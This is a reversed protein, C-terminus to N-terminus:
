AILSLHSFDDSPVCLQSRFLDRSEEAFGLRSISAISNIFPNDILDAVDLNRRANGYNSRYELALADLDSFEMSEIEGGKPQFCCSFVAQTPLKELLLKQVKGERAQELDWVKKSVILNNWQQNSGQCKDLIKSQNEERRRRLLEEILKM